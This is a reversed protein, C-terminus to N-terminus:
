YGQLSSTSTSVVRDMELKSLIYHHQSSSLMKTLVDALQDTTPVHALTLLGEMIKNRTVHCDIDIHKMREHFVPNKVIHIAYTNDCYLTVPQLDKIGLTVVYGTVSRRTSPCAAWDSDSFAKLSLTQAGKLSIGLSM